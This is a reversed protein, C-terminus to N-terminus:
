IFVATFKDLYPSLARDFLNKSVTFGLANLDDRVRVLNGLLFNDGGLYYSETAGILYRIGGGFRIFDIPNTLKM